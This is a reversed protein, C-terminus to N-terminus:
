GFSFPNITSTSNATITNSASLNNVDLTQTNSNYVMNSNGAFSGSSNYQIQSNLGGPQGGSPITQWTATTPTTAILVQGTSPTTTNISVLGSSSVLKTAEVSNGQV